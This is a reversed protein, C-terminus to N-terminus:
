LVMAIRAYGPARGGEELIVTGAARNLRSQTRCYHTNALNHKNYARARPEQLLSRV